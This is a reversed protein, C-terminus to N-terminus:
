PIIKQRDLKEKSEDILESVRKLLWGVGLKDKDLQRKFYLWAIQRQIDDSLHCFTMDLNEVIQEIRKSNQEM